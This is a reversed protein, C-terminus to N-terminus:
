VLISLPLNNYIMVVIEKFRRVTNLELKEVVVLQNVFGLIMMQTEPVLVVKCTKQKLHVRENFRQNVPLLNSEYDGIWMSQVVNDMLPTLFLNIFGRKNIIEIVELGDFTTDRLMVM